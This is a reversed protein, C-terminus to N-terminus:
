ARTETLLKRLYYQAHGRPYDVATGINEYGRRAYFEPAQFSHTELLAQVCGRAVAESEAADMLRSGLGKGRMQEHVWLYQVYLCGGWTWGSVGAVIEGAERVFIALDRGDRINTVEFNFENIRSELFGVATPDPSAEVTLEVEDMRGIYATWPANSQVIEASAASAIISWRPRSGGRVSCSM